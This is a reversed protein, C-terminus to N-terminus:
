KYPNKEGSYDSNEIDSDDSLSNIDDTVYNPMKIEKVVWYCEELFVQPYCNKDKRYVSDIM